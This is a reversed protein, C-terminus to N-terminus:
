LFNYRLKDIYDRVDENFYLYWGDLKEDIFQVLGEDKLIYSVEYLINVLERIKELYLEDDVSNADMDTDEKLKM